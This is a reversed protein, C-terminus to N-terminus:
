STYGTWVGNRFVEHAKHCQRLRRLLGWGRSVRVFSTLAADLGGDSFSDELPLHLARQWQRGPLCISCKSLGLFKFFTDMEFFVM